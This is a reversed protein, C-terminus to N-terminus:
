CIVARAVTAREGHPDVGVAGGHEFVGCCVEGGLSADLDLEYLFFETVNTVLEDGLRGCALAGVNHDAGVVPQSGEHGVTDNRGNFEAVFRIGELVDGDGRHAVFALDVANRVRDLVDSEHAVGSERGAGRRREILHDRHSIRGSGLVGEQDSEVGFSSVRVM